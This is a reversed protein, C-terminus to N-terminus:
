DDDAVAGDIIADWEEATRKPGSEFREDDLRADAYRRHKAVTENVKEQLESPLAVQELVEILEGVTAELLEYCGECYDREDCGCHVCPM